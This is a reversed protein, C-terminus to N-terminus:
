LFRCRQGRRAVAERGMQQLRVRLHPHDLHLEAVGLQRVVARYAWTAVM